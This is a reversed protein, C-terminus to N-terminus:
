LDFRYINGDSHKNEEDAIFLESDNIFSIAEKQSFHDLKYETVQYENFDSDYDTLIFVKDYTLLAIKNKFVDAATVQCDNKDNCIEIETLKKAKQPVTSIPFTYVSTKGNFDKSRNRTFIYFNNNLVVLSEADFLREKKKPPFEDQDEYYFPHAVANLEVKGSLQEINKISAEYIVLDKRKNYNNGTDAIYINTTSGNKIVAMDEWDVNNWQDSHLEAVVGKNIDCLYIISKGGSDNLALYMTNSIFEMGSCEDIVDPLNAVVPLKDNKLCSTSIFFSLLLLFYAKM